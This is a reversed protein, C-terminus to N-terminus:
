NKKFLGQSIFIIFGAVIMIDALNIIGTAFQWYDITVSFFLRDLFNSLAGFFVLMFAAMMREQKLQRYKIALYFIIILFFTTFFITLLNPAPIGFAIGKNLFPNWGFYPWLIKPATWLTQSFYKLLRDFLFLFFVGMFIYQSRIKTLQM